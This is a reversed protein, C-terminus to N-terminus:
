KYINIYKIRIQIIAYDAQVIENHFSQWAKQLTDNKRYSAARVPVDLRNKNLPDKKM